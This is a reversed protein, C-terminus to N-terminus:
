PVLIMMYMCLELEGRLAGGLTYYAQNKCQRVLFTGMRGTNAKLLRACLSDPDQILRWAQRALMAINV